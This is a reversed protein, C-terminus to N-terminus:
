IVTKLIGWERVIIVFPATIRKIVNKATQWLLKIGNIFVAPKIKKWQPKGYIKWPNKM